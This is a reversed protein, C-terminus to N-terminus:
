KILTVVSINRPLDPATRDTSFPQLLISYMQTEASGANGSLTITGAPFIKEYLHYFTQSSHIANERLTWDALWSPVSTAAQDYAITVKTERNVTFSVFNADSVARDRQATLLWYVANYNEPIYVLTDALDIYLSDGISRQSLRYDPISIDTVRYDQWFDAHGIASLSLRVTTGPVSAQGNNVGMQSSLYWYSRAKGLRDTTDAVPKFYGDSILHQFQVPQNPVPNGDADVVRVVVPESLVRGKSGRQENGSVIELGAPARLDALILTTTGAIGQAVANFGLTDRVTTKDIWGDGSQQYVGIFQKLLNARFLEPSRYHLRVRASYDRIGNDPVIHFWKDVASHHLLSSDAFTLVSFRKAGTQNFQLDDFWMEGDIFYLTDAADNAKPYWSFPKSLPPQWSPAKDASYINKSVFSSDASQAHQYGWFNSDLRVPTLQAYFDNGNGQASNAYIINQRINATADLSFIGGGDLATNNVIANKYVLSSDGDIYLGGGSGSASNDRILNGNYVPSSGSSFVAGGHFNCTNRVFVNDLIKANLGVEYLAGGRFNATNAIFKNDKLTPSSLYAYFGGGYHSAFNDRIINNIFTTSDNDVSVIGGGNADMGDSGTARGGKITFGQVITSASCSSDVLVHTAGGADVICRNPGNESRLLVGSAMKLPFSNGNDANYVGDAVTLTDGPWVQQLAFSISKLPAEKSGRLGHDIGRECDIYYSTRRAAEYAGMDWAAYLPRPDGAYDDQFYKALDVSADRAPSRPALYVDMASDPMTSGCILLPDKDLSGTVNVTNGRDRWYQRFDEITKFDRDTWYLSEDRYHIIAPSVSNPGNAYLNHHLVHTNDAIDAVILQRNANDYLINGIITEHRAYKGAEPTSVIALGAKHGAHECYGNRVLTNNFVFCDSSATLAIGAGENGFCINNYIWTSDAGQDAIIGNGDDWWDYGVEGARGQRNRYSLNYRVINNRSQGHVNIGSCGGHMWGNEYCVNHEIINDRGMVSIGWAGNDHVKNNSILSNAVKSLSIGSAGVRYVRNNRVIVGTMEIDVGDIYIGHGARGGQEPTKVWAPNYDSKDVKAPYNIDYIDNDEITITPTQQVNIATYGRVIRFDSSDPLGYIENSRIVNGSGAAWLSVQDSYLKTPSWNEWMTNNEIINNSSASGKITLTYDARNDHFRCNRVVTSSVQSLMCSIGPNDFFENDSIINGSPIPEGQQYIDTEIGVSLAIRALRSFKNGVIETGSTRSCWVGKDTINAAASTQTFVNNIIRNGPGCRDLYIHTDWLRTETGTNEFRSNAILNNSSGNYLHVAAFGENGVFYCNAIINHHSNNLAIAKRDEPANAFTLGLIYIYQVNDLTFAFSGNWSVVSIIPNEGPYRTIIIPQQATGSTSFIVREQYSGQRILVTDGPLVVSAAQDITKFPGTQQDLPYAALGDFEDNGTAQSVYYTGALLSSATFLHLLIIVFQLIKM